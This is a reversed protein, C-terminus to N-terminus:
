DGVSSPKGRLLLKAVMAAVSNTYSGKSLQELQGRLWLPDFLLWGNKEFHSRLADVDSRIKGAALALRVQPNEGSLGQENMTLALRKLVVERLTPDTFLKYRDAYRGGSLDALDVGPSDLYSKCEVALMENKKPSYAVLDLEWRPCSPRGIQKKEERTLDLKVSRRVWYGEGELVEAILAEFAHM